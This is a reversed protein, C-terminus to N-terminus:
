HPLVQCKLSTINKYSQLLVVLLLLCLILLLLLLLLRLLLLLLFFFSSFFSSSSSSSSSSSFALFLLLLLVVFRWTYCWLWFYLLLTWTYRVALVLVVIVVESRNIGRDLFCQQCNIRIPLWNWGRECLVKRPISGIGLLRTPPKLGNSLFVNVPYDEWFLPSFLNCGGLEGDLVWCGVFITPVSNPNACCPIGGNEGLPLKSTQGHFTPWVEGM